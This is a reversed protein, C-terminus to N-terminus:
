DFKLIAPEKRFERLHISKQIKIVHLTPYSEPPHLFRVPTVLVKWNYYFFFDLLTINRSPELEFPFYGETNTLTQLYLIALYSFIKNKPTKKILFIQM